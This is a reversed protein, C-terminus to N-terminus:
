DVCRHELLLQLLFSRIVPVNDTSEKESFSFEKTKIEEEGEAFVVNLLEKILDDDPPIPQGFCLSSVVEIFYSKSCKRIKKQM